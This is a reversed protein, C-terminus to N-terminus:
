RQQVDYWGSTTGNPRLSIDGPRAEVMLKFDQVGAIGLIADARTNCKVTGTGGLAIRFGGTLKGDGSIQALLTAELENEPQEILFAGFAEEPYIAWIDPPYSLLASM